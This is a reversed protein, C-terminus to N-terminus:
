HLATHPCLLPMPAYPAYEPHGGGGYDGREEMRERRRYGVETGLTAAQREATKFREEMASRIPETLRGTYNWLLPGEELYAKGLASLAAARTGKDKDVM